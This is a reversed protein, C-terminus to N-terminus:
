VRDTNKAIGATTRCISKLVFFRWTIIVPPKKKELALLELQAGSEIEDEVDRREPALSVDRHLSANKPHIPRTGSRQAHLTLPKPDM